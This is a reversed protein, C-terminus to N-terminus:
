LPCMQLRLIHHDLTSINTLGFSPSGTHVSKYDWLITIWLLCIQLGLLRHALTSMKIIELLHHALISVNTICPSTSCSHVCKYDWSITFLNSMDTIRPSSSGYHVFKYDWSITLWFPCIQLGLLHHALTSM